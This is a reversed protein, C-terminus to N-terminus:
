QRVIFQAQIKKLVLHAEAMIYALVICNRLLALYAKSM